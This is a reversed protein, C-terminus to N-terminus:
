RSAKSGDALLLRLVDLKPPKTIHADFGATRAEERDEARGYGTIAILHLDRRWPDERLRRALDYGSMGPLGVDILATEPQFSSIAALASPGDEVIAVEHGWTRVLRALSQATDPNDEVILVRRSREPAAGAEALNGYVKPDEADDPKLIPVRVIFESGKGLGASRAEISGGHLELVRQVVSLGLGLGGGSRALSRDVQAFLEFIEELMEPAIGIGSDRVSLVADSGQQQLTLAIRGGPETYKAANGLLNAVVQELRVPDGNVYIPADPVEASLEHQRQDIRIRNAEIASRILAALDLRERRLEIIGRGIRAVDLLEDVLHVLQATQRAIMDHLEASDPDTDERRLLDIAHTIPTLPNRLEHALMALFEDKRRGRDRLNTTTARHETVDEIGVLILAARNADGLIMQVTLHMVRHGVRPFHRSIEVESVPERNALVADLERRLNQDQWQGADIEYLARGVVEEPRCGFAQYYARNARVVALDRDLVLLPERMTDVIAAGFAREREAVIRAEEIKDNLDALERNRNRLEDNTTTLEENASQLEEKSTELEENTSQFEENASLVEEHASKLQERIAEQEEMTALLYDRMSATEREAQALRRDKESETLPAAALQQGRRGSPARSGDDFLILYCREENARQLPIVEVAVERREDVSLGERRATSGTDRAEQIAASIDGLLETRAVRHLSLSPPGSAHELYPGTEGRFQLINLADDVLLGAPAYRALLLRDAERQASDSELFVSADVAALPGRQSAPPQSGADLVIGLASAKRRYLRHQKNLLAFLDTAQGVSESPGLMLFGSPKLAYHFVQMVRRQAPAELYILLNRCSVLDLRSFPPDRTVDHRAFICLDRISKDIRYHSDTKVFFRELRASSVEQVITDLYLGSRAQEIATESVDTGFIQIGGLTARDGLFEVLAIAVSYVEEGTSCGPVWIRIAEKPSRKACVAPFVERRLGDFSEPDRFFETVRILFDQYLSAAETPDTEVLAVYEELDNTRQLAMRRALRRKLTSRKYHAFDVGHASRLTRFLRALQAEENPAELDAGTEPARAIADARFYPHDRLRVIELAIQKPSLVFDVCGTDIANNPMSPFRATAPEQAFTTGGRRKIARIGLAGDSDGGSLVVGISHEGRAEALSKFFADGPMHRGFGARPALVLRDEVITLTTNPPIVYVHDASVEMGDIASEVTLATRKGLIEPLLSEHDPDLHQIFVYAIGGGSPLAELLESVAELGGASAAIGVVAVM